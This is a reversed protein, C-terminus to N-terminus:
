DLPHTLKWRRCPDFSANVSVRQHYVHAITLLASTYEVYMGHAVCTAIVTVTNRDIPNNHSSQAIAKGDFARLEDLAAPADKELRFM